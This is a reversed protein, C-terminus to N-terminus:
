SAAIVGLKIRYREAPGSSCAQLQDRQSLDSDQGGDVPVVGSPTEEFTVRVSDGGEKGGKRLEGPSGWYRSRRARIGTRDSDWGLDWIGLSHLGCDWLHTGLFCAKLHNITLPSSCPLANWPSNLRSFNSFSTWNLETWDSLRTQSKAVGHVAARWAERNM